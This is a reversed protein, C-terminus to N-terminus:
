PLREYEVSFHALSPNGPWPWYWGQGARGLADALCNYSHLCRNNQAINPTAVGRFPNNTPSRFNANFTNDIAIYNTRGGMAINASRSASSGSSTGGRQVFRFQKSHIIM